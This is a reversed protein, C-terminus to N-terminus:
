NHSVRVSQVDFERTHATLFQVSLKSRVADLDLQSRHTSVVTATFTDGVIQYEGSKIIQKKIDSARDELSKIQANIDGLVDVLNQLKSM